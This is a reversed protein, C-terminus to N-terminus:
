QVFWSNVTCILQSLCFDWETVKSVSITMKPYNKLALEIILDFWSFILQSLYLYWQIKQDLLHIKVNLPDKKPTTNWAFDLLFTLESNYVNTCVESEIGQNGDSQYGEWHTTKQSFNLNVVRLVFNSYLLPSRVWNGTNVLARIEIIRFQMRTM